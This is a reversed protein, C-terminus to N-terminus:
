SPRRQAETGRREKSVGKGKRTNILRLMPRSRGMHDIKASILAASPGAPSGEHFRCGVETWGHGVHVPCCVPRGVVPCVRAPITQRSVVAGTPRMLSTYPPMEVSKSGFVTSLPVSGVWSRSSRVVVEISRVHTTQYDRIGLSHPVTKVM